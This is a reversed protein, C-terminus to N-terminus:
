SWSTRREIGSRGAVVCGCATEFGYPMEPVVPAATAASRLLRDLDADAKKMQKGESFPIAMRKKM